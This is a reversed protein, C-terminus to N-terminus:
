AFWVIVIFYFQVIYLQLTTFYIYFQLIFNYLPQM